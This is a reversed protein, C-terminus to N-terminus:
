KDLPSKNDDDTNSVVVSESEEKRLRCLGISEIETKQNTQKGKLIEM